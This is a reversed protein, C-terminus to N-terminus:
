PTCELSYYRTNGATALNASGGGCIINVKGFNVHLTSGQDNDEYLAHADAPGAQSAQGSGLCELSYYNTNGFQNLQATSEDGSVCGAQVSDGPELTLTSGDYTPTAISPNPHIVFASSILAASGLMAFQSVRRHNLYPLFGIITHRM